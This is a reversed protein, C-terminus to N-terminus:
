HSGVMAKADGFLSTDILREYTVPTAGPRVGKIEVQQAITADINAKTLGSAGSPWFGISLYKEVAKKADSGSRGTPAAAKAVADSNKPDQMFKIADALAAITKVYKARDSGLNQRTTALLMYHSLPQVKNIDEVVHVTKGSEREIIPVDDVHLVGFALQGAAMATGVNSSMPVQKTDAASLNCTKLLQSLAISRAGSISDVGVPQGKLDACSKGPAMSGLIWDPKEYGLVGVVDANANSTMNILLTTPALAVDVNGAILARAANAGSDFPRIEAKLGYKEFFKQQQAVYVQTSIFVPPIAPLGIKITDEAVAASNGTAAIGIVIAGLSILRRIGTM